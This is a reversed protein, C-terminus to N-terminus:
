GDRLYIRHDQIEIEGLWDSMLDMPIDGLKVYWVSDIIDSMLVNNQNNDPVRIELQFPKEQSSTVMDPIEQSLVKNVDVNGFRNGMKIDENKGCSIYFFSLSLFILIYKLINNMTYQNKIKLSMM